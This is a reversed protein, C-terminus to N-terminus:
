DYAQPVELCQEFNKRTEPTMSQRIRDLEAKSLFRPLSEIWKKLLDAKGNYGIAIRDFSSLGNVTQIIKEQLEKPDSKEVNVQFTASLTPLTSIQLTITHEGKTPFLNWNNLVTKLPIEKNPLLVFSGGFIYGGQDPASYRYTAGNETLVINGCFNRGLDMQFKQPSNNKISVTIIVPEGYIYKQKDTSVKLSLPDLADPTLGPYNERLHAYLPYAPWTAVDPTLLPTVLLNDPWIYCHFYAPKKGKATQIVIAVGYPEKVKFGAPQPESQWLARMFGEIKDPENIIVTPTDKQYDVLPSIGRRDTIFYCRISQIKGLM